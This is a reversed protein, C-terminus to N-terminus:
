YRDILFLEKNLKFLELAVLIAQYQPDDIYDWAFTITICGDEKGYSIVEALQSKAFTSKTLELTEKDISSITLKFNRCGSMESDTSFEEISKIRGTFNVMYIPGLDLLMALTDSLEINESNNLKPYNRAPADVLDINNLNLLIDVFEKVKPRLEMNCEIYKM